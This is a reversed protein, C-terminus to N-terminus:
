RAEPDLEDMDAPWPLPFLERWPRAEDVVRKISPRAMLARYYRTVNVQGDQDWCHVARAYFLAPAAACDALTFTAGAAWPWRALQTEIVSYATDLTTRAEAVGDPDERSEPRLSDGVIKRCRRRSM